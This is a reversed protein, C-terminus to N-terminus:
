FKLQEGDEEVAVGPALPFGRFELQRHAGGTIQDEVGVVARVRGSLDVGAMDVQIEALLGVAM